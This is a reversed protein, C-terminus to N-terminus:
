KKGKKGGKLSKSEKELSSIAESLLSIIEKDKEEILAKYKELLPILRFISNEGFSFFEIFSMKYVKLIQELRSFNIDVEDREIRAYSNVEIDLLDALDEQTLDRDKRIAKLRDGLTKM